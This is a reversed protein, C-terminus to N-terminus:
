NTGNATIFAIMSGIVEDKNIKFISDIRTKNSEYATQIAEEDFGMGQLDMQIQDIITEESRSDRTSVTKSMSRQRRPITSRRRTRNFYIKSPRIAQYHNGETHHIIYTRKGEPRPHNYSISTLVPNIEKIEDNYGAHKTQLILINVDFLVAAAYIEIETGWTYEKRMNEVHKRAKNTKGSEKLLECLESDLLNQPSLPFSSQNHEYETDDCYPTSELFDLRSDIFDCIQQRMTNHFSRYHFKDTGPIPTLQSLAEFLCNGKADNPLVRYNSDRLQKKFNRYGIYEGKILTSINM